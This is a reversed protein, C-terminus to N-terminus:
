PMLLAESGRFAGPFVRKRAEELKEHSNANRPTGQSRAVDNWDTKM